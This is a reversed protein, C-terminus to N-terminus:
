EEGDAPLTQLSVAIPFGFIGEAANPPIFSSVRTDTVPLGADRIAGVRAAVNASSGGLVLQTVRPSVDSIANTEDTAPQFLTLAISGGDVVAVEGPAHEAAGRHVVAWGLVEEFFAAADSIGPVVIELGIVNM